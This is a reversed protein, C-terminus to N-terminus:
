SRASLVWTRAASSREIAPDLEFLRGYFLGAATDAIPEVSSWSARIMDIETPTM